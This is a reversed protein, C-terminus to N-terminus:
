VSSVDFSAAVARLGVAREEDAPSCAEKECKAQVCARPHACMPPPPRMMCPKCPAMVAMAM